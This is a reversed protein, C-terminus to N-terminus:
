IAEVKAAGHKGVFNAFSQNYSFAQADLEKQKAEDVQGNPSTPQQQELGWKQENYRQLEEELEKVRADMKQRRERERHLALLSVQPEDDRTIEPQAASEQSPEPAVRDPTNRELIADLPAAVPSGETVSPQQEIETM